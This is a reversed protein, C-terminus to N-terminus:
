CTKHEIESNDADKQLIIFANYLLTALSSLFLM